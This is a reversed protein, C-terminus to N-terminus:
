QSLFFVLLRVIGVRRYLTTYYTLHGKFSFHINVDTIHQSSTQKIIYCDKSNKTKKGTHKSLM